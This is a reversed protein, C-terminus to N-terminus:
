RRGKKKDGKKLKEADERAEDSKTKEQCSCKLLRYNEWEFAPIDSMPILNDPSDKHAALYGSDLCIVCKYTKMTGGTDSM